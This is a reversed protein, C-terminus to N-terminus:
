HYVQSKSCSSQWWIGFDSPFRVTDVASSSYKWRRSILLFVKESRVKVQITKKQKNRKNLLLINNNIKNVWVRCNLTRKKTTSTNYKNFVKYKLSFALWNATNVKLLEGIVRRTAKFHLEALSKAIDTIDFLMLLGCAVHTGQKLQHVQYPIFSVQLGMPHTATYSHTYQFTFSIGSNVKM